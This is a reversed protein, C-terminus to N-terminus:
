FVDPRTRYSRLTSRALSADPLSEECEPCVPFKRPDRSSVIWLGCASVMSSGKVVSATISGGPVFHAFETPVPDRPMVDAGNPSEAAYIIQSARVASIDCMFYLGTDDRTYSAADKSWADQRQDFVPLITTMITTGLDDGMKWPDFEIVLEVLGVDQLHAEAFSNNDTAEDRVVHIRLKMDLPGTQPGRIEIPPEPLTVESTNADGASTYADKFLRLVAWVLEKQWADVREAQQGKDLKLKRLAVDNKDPETQAIRAKGFAASARAHFKDHASAFVAWTLEHKVIIATRWGVGQSKDRAEWVM